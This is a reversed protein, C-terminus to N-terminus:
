REQEMIVLWTILEFADPSNPAEAATPLKFNPDGFLGLGATQERNHQTQIDAIAATLLRDYLAMDRGQDTERDFRDCLQTIPATQGIAAAEFVALTQQLNACGFRIAGDPLIYVFYYPHRPSATRSEPNAPNANRQRLCFIVGPAAKGANANGPAPAPAPAPAVAYAGAPMAELEDKNRELYRLLQAIFHDLTFDGLTPVDDLEELTLAEDRLRRLQNNRFTLETQADAETFPDADGSAAIDALAMRAQVRSELRLYVDMDPTPWYNVMQVSPNRSGIRDIRGFRQVIRVPNWHIDYNIVTDCDQLNQGESICDTAILLDIDPNAPAPPRRRAAPAFNSLIANFNNPGVATHTEDGSVM